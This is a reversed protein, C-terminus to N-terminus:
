VECRMSLIRIEDNNCMKSIKKKHIYIERSFIPLVYLTLSIICDSFFWNRSKKKGKQEKEVLFVKKEWWWWCRSDETTKMSFSNSKKKWKCKKSMRVPLFFKSINKQFKKGQRHTKHYFFFHSNKKRSSYGPNIFNM